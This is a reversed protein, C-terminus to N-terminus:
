GHPHITDNARYPIELGAARLKEETLATLRAWGPKKDEGHHSLMEHRAAGDARTQLGTLVPLMAPEAILYDAWATAAEAIRPDDPDWDGATWNLKILSVFRPDDLAHEIQGLYDSFSEPVMARVLVFAERALAVDAAAFGLVSMRTLLAFARDPLLVRDGSALLHLMERRAILEDIRSTLRREVDVLAAAFEDPDADLIGAVEALPVGADALTRAQVLRLLDATGYRRYGSRDRRPEALLGHQHYHRVTKVTVGAFAAAQGITVGETM